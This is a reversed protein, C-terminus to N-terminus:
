NPSDKQLAKEEAKFQGEKKAKTTAKAVPDAAKAAKNVPPSASPMNTSEKQMAKEEAKFRAEKQAKTTAKPIPDAPKASKNVPPSASPMNTSEKQMAKEDAKFKAATADSKAREEAKAVDAASSQAWCGSAAIALTASTALILTRQMTRM